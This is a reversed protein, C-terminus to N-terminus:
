RCEFNLARSGLRALSGGELNVDVVNAIEKVLVVDVQPQSLNVGHVVLNNKRREKQSEEQKLDRALKTEKSGAKVVDAFSNTLSEEVKLIDIETVKELITELQKVKAKMLGIKCLHRHPAIEHCHATATATSFM